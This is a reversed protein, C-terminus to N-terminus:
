AFQEAGAETETYEFAKVTKITDQEIEVEEESESPRDSSGTEELSRDGALYEIHGEGLRIGLLHRFQMSAEMLTDRCPETDSYWSAIAATYSGDALSDLTFSPFHMLDRKELESVTSRPLLNFGAALALYALAVVAVFFFGRKM